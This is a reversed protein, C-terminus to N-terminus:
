GVQFGSVEVIESKVRDDVGSFFVHSKGPSPSLGFLSKFETLGQMILEVSKREGECFVMLDDFFCLNILKLKECKWHIKFVNSSAKEALIRTLMEMVIVFLYPSLPDGQRLGTSPRIYYGRADEKGVGQLFGIQCM